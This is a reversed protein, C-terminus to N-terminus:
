RALPRGASRRRRRPRRVGAHVLQLEALQEAVESNGSRWAAMPDAAVTRLEAIPLTALARLALLDTGDVTEVLGLVESARRSFALRRPLWFLMLLVVPVLFTLWGAVTATTEIANVQEQASAMLGAVTGSLGTFPQSLGDGVVPLGDAQRAIEDLQSRVGGGVAVTQRAPEAVSRVVGDTVRGAFWWGITWVLVFADFVIQRVLKMSPRAYFRMPKMMAGSTDLGM